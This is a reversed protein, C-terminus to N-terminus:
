NGKESVYKIYEDELGLMDIARRMGAFSHRFVNTMGPEEMEYRDFIQSMKFYRYTREFLAEIKEKSIEM